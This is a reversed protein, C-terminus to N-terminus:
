NSLIEDMTHIQVDTVSEVIHVYIMTDTIKSHGLIKQLVEVRGGSLLYNTAFTHRSVHFTLNKRIGVTKAIFKLERNIYEGTFSGAFITKKDMFSQASKNLPIRHLKGTKEAHFVIYNDFINDHSIKQIDSIRLGTFCSFLFRALIAKHTDNIFDSSWYKHLRVIEGPELFTREGLFAKNHIDDYQLPTVIGRKNAIHLIKKFTKVFSSITNDTNKLKTKFHMKLKAFFDDTIEYFYVTERYEKLKNLMTMQQRYTSAKLLLKQNEMEKTWFNVFDMKSMPNEYEEILKEFSIATNNMRYNLEIKYFDALMKEIIFNYDSAHQSSPKVRQTKKDFDAIPVAINVSVRKRAKNLFMQLFLACTGDNRIYDDKIIIKYTLKGSFNM